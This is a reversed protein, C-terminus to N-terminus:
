GSQGYTIVVLYQLFKIVALRTNLFHAMLSHLKEGRLFAPTVKMISDTSVLFEAYVARTHAVNLRDHEITFGTGDSRPNDYIVIDAESGMASDVTRFQVYERNYEAASM